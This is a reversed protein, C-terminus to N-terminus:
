VWAQYLRILLTPTRCKASRALAVWCSDSSLSTCFEGTFTRRVATLSLVWHSRGAGRCVGCDPLLALSPKQPLTVPTKSSLFAKGSARVEGSGATSSPLRALRKSGTARTNASCLASPASLVMM